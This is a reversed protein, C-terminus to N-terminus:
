FVKLGEEHNKIDKKTRVIFSENDQLLQKQISDATETLKHATAVTLNEVKRKGTIIASITAQAVGSKKAIQYGSVNELLWEIQSTDVKM